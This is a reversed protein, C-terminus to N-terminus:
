FSSLMCIWASSSSFNYQPTVEGSLTALISVIFSLFHHQSRSSPHVGCLVPSAIFRHRWKPSWDPPKELCSFSSVNHLGPRASDQPIFDTHKLQFCFDARKTWMQLSQVLLTLLQERSMWWGQHMSLGFCVVGSFIDHWLCHLGVESVQGRGRGAEM